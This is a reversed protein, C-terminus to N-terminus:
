MAMAALGTIVMTLVLFAIIAGAIIRKTKSSRWNIM